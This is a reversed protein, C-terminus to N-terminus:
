IILSFKFLDVPQTNSDIWVTMGLRSGFILEIFKRDWVGPFNWSINTLYWVQAPAPPWKLFM